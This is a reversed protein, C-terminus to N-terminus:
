RTKTLLKKLEPTTKPAKEALEAWGADYATKLFKESEAPSLQIVEIGAKQLIPREKKMLDEFLAVAKREGEVAAENLIDQLKKPLKNWRALNMLMVDGVMYFGPDIRYKTVKQWGWETIGIAPWAYGDVINRELAQYIETPPIVV